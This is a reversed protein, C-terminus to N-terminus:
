AILYYKTDKKRLDGDGFKGRRSLGISQAKMSCKPAVAVFLLSEQIRLKCNTCLTIDMTDM